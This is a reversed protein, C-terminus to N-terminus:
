VSPYVVQWTTCSKKWGCYPASFLDGFTWLTGRGAQLPELNASVDRFRSCRTPPKTCKIIAGDTRQHIGLWFFMSNLGGVLSSKKACLFSFFSCIRSNSVLIPFTFPEFNNSEGLTHIWALNHLLFIFGPVGSVGSLPIKGKPSTPDGAFECHTQMM